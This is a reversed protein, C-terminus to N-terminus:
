VHLERIVQVAYAPMKDQLIALQKESLSRRNQYQKAFSSLIEADFASFGVGNLEQTTETEQEAATQRAFIFELVFLAVRPNKRIGRRLRDVREKQTPIGVLTKVALEKSIPEM